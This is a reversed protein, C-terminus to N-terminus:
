GQSASDHSSDELRSSTGPYDFSSTSASIPEFLPLGDPGLSRNAPIFPTAMPNYRDFPRDFGAYLTLKYKSCHIISSVTTSHARHIVRNDVPPVKSLQKGCGLTSGRM